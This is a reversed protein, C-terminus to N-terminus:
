KGPDKTAGKALASDWDTDRDGGGAELLVQARELLARRAPNALWEDEPADPLVAIAALEERTLEGKQMLAEIFLRFPYRGQYRRAMANVYRRSCGGSREVGLVTVCSSEVYWDHGHDTSLVRAFESLGLYVDTGAALFDDGDSTGLGWQYTTRLSFCGPCL